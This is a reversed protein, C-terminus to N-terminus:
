KKKLHTQICYTVDKEGSKSIWQIAHGKTNFEKVLKLVGNEKNEVVYVAFTTPVTYFGWIPKM